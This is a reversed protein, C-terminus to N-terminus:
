AIQPKLRPEDLLMVVFLIVGALVTLFSGLGVLFLEGGIAWAIIGLIVLVVGGTLNREPGRLHTAGSYVLIVLGFIIALVALVAIDVAGYRLGYDYRGYGLLLGLIGGLIVLIGGLAALITVLSRQVMNSVLPKSGASPYLRERSGFEPPDSSGLM